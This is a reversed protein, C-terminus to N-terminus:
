LLQRITKLLSVGGVVEKCEGAGALFIYPSHIPPTRPRSQNYFMLNGVHVCPAIKRWLSTVGSSERREKNLANDYESRSVNVTQLCTHGHGMSCLGDASLCCCFCCFGLM